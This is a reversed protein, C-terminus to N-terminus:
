SHIAEYAISTPIGANCSGIDMPCVSMVVICDQEAQLTIFDGPRSEPNDNSLYNNQITVKMFLNLPDPMWGYSLFERTKEFAPGLEAVAHYLNNACSDHHESAGIQLYREPSCAAFLVDHLGPSTDETITLIPRRRNDLFSQGISPLLQHPTSRTHSMSMFRPFLPQEVAFAWTDVVQGGSTNIIKISEGARLTQYAFSRPPVVQM